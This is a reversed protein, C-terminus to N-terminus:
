DAFTWVKARWNRLLDPFIMAPHNPVALHAKMRAFDCGPTRLSVKGLRQSETGMLRQFCEEFATM